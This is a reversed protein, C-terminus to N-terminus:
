KVPGFGAVPGRLYGRGKGALLTGNRSAPNGTCNVAGHVLSRTELMALRSRAAARKGSNRLFVNGSASACPSTVSSSANRMSEHPDREVRIDQHAREIVGNVTGLNADIVPGFGRQSSSGVAHIVSEANRGLRSASLM